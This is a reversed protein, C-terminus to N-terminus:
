EFAANSRQTLSLLNGSVEKLVTESRNLPMSPHIIRANALKGEMRPHNIPLQNVTSRM